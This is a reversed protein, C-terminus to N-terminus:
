QHLHTRHPHRLNQERQRRVREVRHATMAPLHRPRYNDPEREPAVAILDPVSADCWLGPAVRWIGRAALDSQFEIETM